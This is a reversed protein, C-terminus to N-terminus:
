VNSYGINQGADAASQKSSGHPTSSLLQPLQASVASMNTPSLCQTCTKKSQEVALRSNKLIEAVTVM